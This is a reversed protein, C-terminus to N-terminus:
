RRLVFDQWIIWPRYGLANNIALMGVNTSDNGTALREIGHRACWRISALKAARALGRRRYDRATGTMDNEAHRRAVKIRTFAVPRDGDVVVFSGDQSVLPDRLVWELWEDFGLNTVAHDAPVDLAAEMDLEYLDRERGRMDALTVLRFGEPLTLASTDVSRPDLASFRAQRTREYGLRSLFRYGDEECGGSELERAGHEVAHGAALEYLRSGNGAGRRDPRVIGWVEAVDDRETAWKFKARVCGVVEGEEEAVWMRAHAREPRSRVGHLIGEATVFWPLDRMLAAVGEADREEFERIM